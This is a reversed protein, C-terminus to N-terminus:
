DSGKLMTWALAGLMHVICLTTYTDNEGWMKIMWYLEGIVPFILTLIGGMIGGETFAIITTWIHFVVATIPFVGLILFILISKM